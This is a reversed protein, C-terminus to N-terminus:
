KLYQNFFDEMKLQCYENVRQVVDMAHPWFPLRYYVCPVGLSDLHAKLNDSQSVPVLNDSTGQFILTPPDNKDIYQKPSAERYLEPAEEFSHAIFSTVLPHNRAYGTTLDYPGYIDVIAKIKHGTEESKISDINNDYNRWGYAALMALHGGASGGILAIRDPDYGYTEGNRFFWGAADTIDEVCAPYPSDKLLRYSVTATIYGRRAFALLYVLYDARNGGKWGGGHIFVLLPAASNINKPKYIDLQLSKGNIKKYEINKIEEIDAPVVPTTNVLKELGVGLALYDLPEFIYGVPPKSPNLASWIRPTVMLICILLFIVLFTKLIRKLIKSKIM